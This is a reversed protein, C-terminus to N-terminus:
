MQNPTSTSPGSPTRSLMSAKTQSGLKTLILAILLAASAAENIKLTSSVTLFGCLSFTHEVTHVRNKGSVTPKGRKAQCLGMWAVPPRESLMSPVLDHYASVTSLACPHVFLIPQIM